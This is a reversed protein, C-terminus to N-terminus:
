YPTLPKPHLVFYELSLGDALYPCQASCTHRSCCHLTLCDIARLMLAGSAHSSLYIPLCNKQMLTASWACICCLGAGPARLWMHCPLEVQAPRNFTRDEIFTPGATNRQQSHAQPSNDCESGQDDDGNFDVKVDSTFPDDHAPSAGMNHFAVLHAALDGLGQAPM